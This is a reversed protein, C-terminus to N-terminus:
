ICMNVVCMCVCLHMSDELMFQFQICMCSHVYCDWIFMREVVAYWDQVCIDARVRASIHVYFYTFIHIYLPLNPEMGLSQAYM